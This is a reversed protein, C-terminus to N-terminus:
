YGTTKSRARSSVAQTVDPLDYSRESSLTRMQVVPIIISYAESYLYSSICVGFKQTHSEPIQKIVLMGPLLSACEFKFIVPWIAYILIKYQSVNKYLICLSDIIGFTISIFLMSKIVGKQKPIQLKHACLHCVNRDMRCRLSVLTLLGTKVSSNKFCRRLFMFYYM